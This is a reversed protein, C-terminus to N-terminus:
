SFVSRSLNGSLFIPFRARVSPSCSRLSPVSASARTVASNALICVLTLGFDRRRADKLNGTAAELLLIVVTALLLYKLDGMTSTHGTM